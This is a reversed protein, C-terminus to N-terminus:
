IFMMMKIDFVHVCIVAESLKNNEIPAPVGGL